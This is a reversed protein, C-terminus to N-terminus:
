EESEVIVVEYYHAPRGFLNEKCQLRLAPRLKYEGNKYEDEYGWAMQEGVITYIYQDAVCQPDKIKVKIGVLNSGNNISLGVYEVAKMGLKDETAIVEGLKYLKEM